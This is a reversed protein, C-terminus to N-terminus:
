SGVEKLKKELEEIYKNQSEIIKNNLENQTKTVHMETKFNNYKNYLHKVGAAAALGGVAILGVLGYKAM